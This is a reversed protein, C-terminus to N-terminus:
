HTKNNGLRISESHRLLCNAWRPLLKLHNGHRHLAYLVYLGLLLLTLGVVRAMLNDLGEPLTIGIFLASLPIGTVVSAHGIAYLFSQVIGKRKSTQTSTIDFTAAMHDWNVGHRMGVVLALFVLIELQYEM